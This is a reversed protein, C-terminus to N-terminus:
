PNAKAFSALWSFTSLTEGTKPEVRSNIPVFGIDLLLQQSRQNTESTIALIKPHRRQQEVFDLTMRAAKRAIGQGFYRRLLAFGLDPADLYDRQVLGCVGAAQQEVEILWMGFGNQQYSKIFNTQIYASAEALTHVGRDGIGLLFDESGYLELIFPADTIEVERLVINEQKGIIQM